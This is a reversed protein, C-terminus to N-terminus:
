ATAAEGSDDAVAGLIWERFATVRAHRESGPPYVLYYGFDVPVSLDFPRVLRGAELDAQVSRFWGLAVGQGRIAAELALNSQTFTPGRLPDCGAVGAAKLWMRWDPTGVPEVVHLLTHHRLDAPERLAHEGSLLRPSCVPMVVEEGFLKDVQMGPYDGRGYRVAVDVDESVLDVLRESADLRVDIGPYAEAFRELRPVLWRAGFTPSVTVTLPRSEESARTAAVAAALRDFGESLGPLCVQGADTLLLANHARRFLSVGLYDELAKVQHSVAAPTVNLEKAATSLSLHRAAAEFARLANLSPLQRSTM